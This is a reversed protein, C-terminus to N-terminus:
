PQANQVSFATGYSFPRGTRQHHQAQAHLLVIAPLTRKRQPATRDGGVLVSGHCNAPSDRVDDLVGQQLSNFEFQRAVEQVTLLGHLLTL